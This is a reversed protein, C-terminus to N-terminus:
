GGKRGVQRSVEAQLQAAGDVLHAHYVGVVVVAAVGCVGAAVQLLLLLLVLRTPRWGGRLIGPAGAALVQGAPVRLLLRM